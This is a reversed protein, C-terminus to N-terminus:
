YEYKVTVSYTWETFVLGLLGLWAYRMVNGLGRRM